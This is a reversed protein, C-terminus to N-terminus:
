KTLYVTSFYAEEYIEKQRKTHSAMREKAKSIETYSPISLERCDIFDFGPSNTSKILLNGEEFKVEINNPLEWIFLYNEEIVQIPTNPSSKIRIAKTSLKQIEM